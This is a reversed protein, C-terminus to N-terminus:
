TMLLVEELSTEGSKVKKLGSARLTVVGELAAQEAMQMANCQSLILSCIAETIPMVQHIGLRGWYGLSHCEPCGQAKYVQLKQQLESESFGAARQQELTLEVPRKCATCLRRVLRQATILLLSTALNFSPIGMSLLRMLTSTADNTHLTSFVLHGTQAAKLAIDATELDRIEGLMIIDPDQRLFARLATSFNLGAKENVNVQNIGHLNIEVPDEVTLINRHAQNLFNLFSYLTLTKGSGTPGTVLIMGHPRSLSNLIIEKQENEYGLHALDLIADLPDLLRIVVKEGFLTPLTSVRFEISRKDELAMKFHGDQPIRKEAIDLRAMVKIRMILKERLADPVNEMAHLVGDIRLRILCIHEFPEFHIDSARKQLADKLVQDLLRVAPAEERGGWLATQNPNATAM